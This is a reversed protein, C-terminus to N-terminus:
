RKHTKMIKKIKRKPQKMAKAGVIEWSIFSELPEVIGANALHSHYCTFKIFGGVQRSATAASVTHAVIM